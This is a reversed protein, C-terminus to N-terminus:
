GVPRHRESRPPAPPGPPTQKAEAHIRPLRSAWQPLESINEGFIPQWAEPNSVPAESIYGEKALQFARKVSERFSMPTGAVGALKGIEWWAPNCFDAVTVGVKRGEPEGVDYDHGQVPDAVEVIVLKGKRKVVYPTAVHPDVLMEMAEHSLVSGISAGADLADKCFVDSFPIKTGEEDSHFGLTGAEESVDMLVLHWAGPPPKQGKGLMLMKSLPPCIGEKVWPSRGFQYKLQYATAWVAQFFTKDDVVTSHNEVSILQPQPTM